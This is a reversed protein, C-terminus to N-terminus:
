HWVCTAVQAGQAETLGVHAGNQVRIPGQGVRLLVQGVGHVLMVGHMLM